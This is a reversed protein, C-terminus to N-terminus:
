LRAVLTTLHMMFGLISRVRNPETVRSPFTKSCSTTMRSWPWTFFLFFFSEL